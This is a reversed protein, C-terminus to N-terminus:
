FYVRMGLEVYRNRFDTTVDTLGWHYQVEVAFFLIKFAGGIFATADFSDFKNVTPDPEIGDITENSFVKFAASAGGFAQLPGINVGLSAPIAVYGIKIFNERDDYTGSEHYELGTRWKLIAAAKQERFIGVYFSKNKKDFFKEKEMKLQASHLGFRIGNKRDEHQADSAVSFLLFICTSLFIKLAFRKM